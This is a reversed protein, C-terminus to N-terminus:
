WRARAARPHRSATSGVSNSRGERDRGVLLRLDRDACAAMLDHWGSRTAGHADLVLVLALPDAGVQGGPVYVAGAEEPLDDLLNGDGHEIGEDGFYHALFGVSGSAANAPDHVAAGDMPPLTGDIPDLDVERDELAFREGWGVESRLIGHGLTDEAELIVMSGDCAGELRLEGTAIQLLEELPPGYRM